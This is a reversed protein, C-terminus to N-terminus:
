KKPATEKKLFKKEIINFRHWSYYKGPKYLVPLLATLSSHRLQAWPIDPSKTSVMADRGTKVSTIDPSPSKPARSRAVEASNFALWPRIELLAATHSAWQGMFLVSVCCPIKPLSTYKYQVHAVLIKLWLTHKRTQASYNPSQKSCYLKFESIASTDFLWILIIGTDIKNM